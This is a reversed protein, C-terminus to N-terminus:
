KGSSMASFVISHSCRTRASCGSDGHNVYSAVPQLWAGCWTGRSHDSLYWPLNSAPQSTARSSVSARWFSSPTTGASVSSGSFSSNGFHSESVSVSFRRYARWISVYAPYESFASQFTPRTSAAISSIPSSSSVRIMQIQPSLPALMSPVREPVNLSNVVSFPIGSVM